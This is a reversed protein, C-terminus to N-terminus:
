KFDGGVIEIGKKGKAIDGIVWSKIGFKEKLMKKVKVADNDSIVLVMGLGMNFTRHLEKHGIGAKEAMEQFIRPVDWSGSRIVARAGEPLIRPINEQLGGGTINAAGKIEAIGAAELFPRVYIITPALLARCRQKIEKKTFIKRVLSYGNSHLGSSAMGLIVDGPKIKKGTIAKKRSVAGVSFGALDYEGKKYMGPMEATEGGLLACGADKCGAVIGKLVESWIKGELKGCAFYDLFFLPRAGCCLLDNVCMAVLDIGITDHKGSIEAIKLKTGVGDTSAVLLPDKEGAAFLDFFGGFGGISGMSGKVRTSEILPTMSKILWDAKSIDVGATKYTVTRKKKMEEDKKM